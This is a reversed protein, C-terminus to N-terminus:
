RAACGTNDRLVRSSSAVNNGIRTCSSAPGNVLVCETFIMLQDDKNPCPDSFSVLDVEDNFTPMAANKSMNEWASSQEHADVCQKNVTAHLNRTYTENAYAIYLSLSLFINMYIYIYTYM